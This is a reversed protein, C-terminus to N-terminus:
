KLNGRKREQVMKQFLLMYNICDAIRGEIPESESQGGSKIFSFVASVHKYFYVGLVAEPTLGTFQAVTKFNYLRDQTGITYDKGKVKLIDVCSKIMKDFDIDGTLNLKEIMARDDVEKAEGFKIVGALEQQRGIIGPEALREALRDVAEDDVIPLTDGAISEISNRLADAALAAEDETALREVVSGDAKLEITVTSIAPPINENM